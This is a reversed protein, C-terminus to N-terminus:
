NRSRSRRAGCGSVRRSRRWRLRCLCIRGAHTRDREARRPLSFGVYLAVNAVLSLVVGHVLPPLDLGFLAQPRLWALGFPGDGLIREGVMGADFISPLLLTYAWVLIGATM